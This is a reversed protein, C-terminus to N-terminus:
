GPGAPTSNVGEAFRAAKRSGLRHVLWGGGLLLITMGLIKFLALEKNPEDPAPFAALGIALCTTVLGTCGVFISVLPGGPLRTVGPPAPERQLRILALFLTVFPLFTTIIGMSVLVDYAGKVGTGAQGLVVFVAGLAAQVLLAVYPTGWRPHVRGFVPPLMRDIGVVFPIRACAALYGSAAGLNGLTILLALPVVLWGVGLRGATASAAQILGQLSSVQDSPIALLVAMTGAIYCITAVAGAIPLARPISRRPNRIEGSMFSVAEPGSFAFAITSWFVMHRWDLVPKMAEATFRTASGFRWWALGGMIIVIAAPLWMGIAGINHMWKGIRLGILNLITILALACLAFIMYFARSDHLHQWHAGGIFLANGADFYFISPFYPLNSTFYSWGAMFGVFPGFAQRTWVYLGGEEPYRSSLEIIALVLPLYFSFLAAIWIYIASPGASAATAIWRLSVGTVIYFLALDAVGMVKPPHAPAVESHMPCSHFAPAAIVLPLRTSGIGGM